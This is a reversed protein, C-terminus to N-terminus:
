QERLRKELEKGNVHGDGQKGRGLKKLRRNDNLSAKIIDDAPDSWVPGKGKDTTTPYVIDEPLSISPQDAHDDDSYVPMDPGDEEDESLAQFDAADDEDDDDSDDSGNLEPADIVFLDSDDIHSLDNLPPQGARSSSGQSDHLAPLGNRARKTKSRGFLTEELDLEEDEKDLDSTSATPRIHQHPHGEPSSPRPRRKSQSTISM